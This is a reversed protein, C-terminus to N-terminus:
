PKAGKAAECARRRKEAATEDKVLRRNTKFELACRIEYASRSGINRLDRLEARSRRCLEDITGIGSQLLANTIGTSLHLYEIVDCFRMDGRDEIM